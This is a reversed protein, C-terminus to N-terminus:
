HVHYKCNKWSHSHPKGARPLLQKSDTRSSFHFLLREFSSWWAVAVTWHMICNPKVTTMHSRESVQNTSGVKLCRFYCNSSASTALGNRRHGPFSALMECSLIMQVVTTRHQTDTHWHMGLRAVLQDETVMGIQQPCQQLYQSPQTIKTKHKRAM